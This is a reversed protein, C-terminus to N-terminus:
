VVNCAEFDQFTKSKASFKHRCNARWQRRETQKEKAKIDDARRNILGADNWVFAALLCPFMLQWLFNSVMHFSGHSRKLNNLQWCFSFESFRRSLLQGRRMSTFGRLGPMKAGQSTHFKSRVKNSNIISIRVTWIEVSFFLNINSLNCTQTYNAYRFDVGEVLSFSWVRLNMPMSTILSTSLFFSPRFGIQNIIQLENSCIFTLNWCKLGGVM